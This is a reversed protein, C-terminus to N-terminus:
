SGGAHCCATRPTHEHTLVEIFLDDLVWDRLVALPLYEHSAGVAGRCPRTTTMYDSTSIRFVSHRDRWQRVQQHRPQARVILLQRALVGSCDEDLTWM